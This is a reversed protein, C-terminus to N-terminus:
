CCQSTPGTPIGDPNLLIVPTPREYNWYHNELVFLGETYIIVQAVQQSEPLDGAQLYFGGSVLYMCSGHMNKSNWFQSCCLSRKKM